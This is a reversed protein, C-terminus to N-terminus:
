MHGHAMGEDIAGRIWNISVIRSGSMAVAILDIRWLAADPDLNHAAMYAYAAAAMSRAKRPSISEEALGARGHRTRVEAFVLVQQHPAAVGEAQPGDSGNASAGVGVDAPCLAVIDIEGPHAHWNRAVVVCGAGTLHRAAAEEGFLATASLARKAAKRADDSSAPM